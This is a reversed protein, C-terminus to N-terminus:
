AVAEWKAAGVSDNGGTALAFGGDNLSWRIVGPMWHNSPTEDRSWGVAEERFIFVFGAIHGNRKAYAKAAKTLATKNM